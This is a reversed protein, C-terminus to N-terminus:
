GPPFRNSECAGNTRLTQIPFITQDIPTLTRIKDVRIQEDFIKLFADNDTCKTDDDCRIHYTTGFSSLLERYRTFVENEVIQAAGVTMALRKSTIGEVIM